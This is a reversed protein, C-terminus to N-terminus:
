SPRDINAGKKKLEAEVKLHHLNQLEEISGIVSRKPLVENYVENL